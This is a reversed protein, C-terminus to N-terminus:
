SENFLVIINNEDLMFSDYPSLGWDDNEDLNQFIASLQRSGKMPDAPNPMIKVRPVNGAGYSFLIIYMFESPHSISIFSKPSETDEDMEALADNIIKETQRMNQSGRIVKVGIVPTATGSGEEKEGILMYKSDDLPKILNTLWTISSDKGIMYIAENIKDETTKENLSMPILFVQKM